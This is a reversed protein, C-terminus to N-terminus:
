LKIVDLYSYFNGGVGTDADTVIYMYDENFQIFQPNKQISHSDVGMSIISALFINAPDYVSFVYIEASDWCPVFLLRRNQHLISQEPTFVVPKTSVISPASPNSIDVVEVYSLLSGNWETLYAYTGNPDLSISIVGTTVTTLTSKLLPSTANAGSIDYIQMGKPNAGTIYLYNGSIVANVNGTFSVTTSITNVLTASAPVSIDVIELYGITPDSFNTTPIYLYNGNKAFGTTFNASIVNDTITALVSISAPNTLDLVKLFSTSKYYTLYGYNGDRLITYPGLGGGQTPLDGLLSISTPTPVSYAELDPTDFSSPTHTGSHYYPFYLFGAYFQFMGPGNGIANSTVITGSFPAFTKILPSNTMTGNAAGVQDFITSSTDNPANGMRYWHTLNAAGTLDTPQGNNYLGTIQSTLAVSWVSVDDIYGDYYGAATLLIENGAIDTTGNYVITGSLSSGVTTVSQNVADVWIAMGSPSNSGDYTIVVQHWTNTTISSGATVQINSVGDRISFILNTGNPSWLAYGFFNVPAPLHWTSIITGGSATMFVWASISFAQNPQFRINNGLDLYQSSASAFLVSNFDTFATFRSYGPTLFRLM